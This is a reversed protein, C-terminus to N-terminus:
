ALLGPVPSISIYIAVEETTEELFVSLNHFSPLGEGGAQSKKM